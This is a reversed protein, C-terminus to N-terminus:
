VYEKIKNLDLIENEYNFLVKQYANSADIENEFQGIYIPKKDILINSEWKNSTKNWSVGIYNSSCKLHKHYSNERCTVIELNDINNNLKNFDKHNVVLKYKCPIYNLFTIAVLQHVRRTYVKGEKTLCLQKYGSNGIRPSLILEKSLFPYKGNRLITRSLSKVNGLNSIQYDEFEKLPKWNEM